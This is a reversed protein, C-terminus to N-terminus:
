RLRVTRPDRHSRPSTARDGTLVWFLGAQKLVPLEVPPAPCERVFPASAATLWRPGEQRNLWWNVNGAFQLLHSLAFM